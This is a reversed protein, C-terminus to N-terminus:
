FKRIKDELHVARSAFSEKNTLTVTQRLRETSESLVPSRAVKIRHSECGKSQKSSFM